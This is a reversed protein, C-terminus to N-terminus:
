STFTVTLDSSWFTPEQKYNLYTTVPTGEIRENFSLLKGSNGPARAIDTLKFITKIVPVVANLLWEPGLLKVIEGAFLAQPPPQSPKADDGWVAPDVGAETFSLYVKDGKGRSLQAVDTAASRYTGPVPPRTRLAKVVIKALKTTADKDNADLALAKIHDTISPDNLTTGEINPVWTGDVTPGLFIDVVHTLAQSFEVSLAIALATADNALEDKSKGKGTDFLRKLWNNSEKPTQTAWHILSAGLGILPIQETAIGQIHTKVTEQFYKSYSQVTSGKAVKTSPEAIDIFIYEYIEKFKLYVEQDLDSGHPNTPTKLPLGLVHEAIFYVPVLNIVDRVINISQKNDGVLSYSKEKLLMATTKELFDVQKKLAVSTPVFAEAILKKDAANVGAVNYSDLYGKGPLVISANHPVTAALSPSALAAM